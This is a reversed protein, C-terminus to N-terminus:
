GVMGFPLRDTMDERKDLEKMENIIIRITAPSRQIQGVPLSILDRCLDWMQATKTNMTNATM